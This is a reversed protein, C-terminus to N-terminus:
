LICLLVDVTQKYMRYTFHQYTGLLGLACCQEIIGINGISELYIPSVELNCQGFSVSFINFNPSKLMLITSQLRPNGYVNKSDVPM